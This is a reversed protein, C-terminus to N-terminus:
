NRGLAILGGGLVVLVAAVFVRPGVRDARGLLIVSFVVAWLSQSANLPSVVTVRGVDLGWVLGAYGVSLSVGALLFPRLFRAASPLVNRHQLLSEVIVLSCWGCVIPAVTAAFPPAHHHEAILRVSVDRLAFLAASLGALVLGIARFGEPRHAEREWGLLACGGVILVTGAVIPPRVPEGLFAIALAASLLPALGIVVGARSPGAASVSALFMYQSVGPVMFGTLGFLVLATPDARALQGSVVAIGGILLISISVSAIAGAIPIPGRPVPVRMLVTYAGFGIGAVTGLLVALM